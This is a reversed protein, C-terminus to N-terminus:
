TNTCPTYIMTIKLSGSPDHMDGLDIYIPSHSSHYLAADPFSRQCQFSICQLLILTILLSRESSHDEHMLNLSIALANSDKDQLDHSELDSLVAQESDALHSTRDWAKILQVFSRSGIQTAAYNVSLCLLVNYLIVPYYFILSKRVEQFSSLMSSCLFRGVM